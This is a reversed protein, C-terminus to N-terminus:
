VLPTKKIKPINKLQLRGITKNIFDVSDTYFNNFNMEVSKYDRAIYWLDPSTKVNTVDYKIQTALLVFLAILDSTPLDLKNSLALNVRNRIETLIKISDVSGYSM